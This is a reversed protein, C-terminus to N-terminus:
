CVGAASAADRHLPSGKIGVALVLHYKRRSANGTRQLQPANVAPGGCCVHRVQKQAACVASCHSHAAACIFDLSVGLRVCDVPLAQTFNRIASVPRGCTSGTVLLWRMVSAYSSVATGAAAVDAASAAGTVADRTSAELTTAPSRAASASSSKRGHTKQEDECPVTDLLKWM